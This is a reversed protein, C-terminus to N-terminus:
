GSGHKLNIQGPYTGGAFDWGWEPNERTTACYIVGVLSAACMLLHRLINGGGGNFLAVTDRLL